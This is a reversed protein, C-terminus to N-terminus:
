RRAQFLTYNGQQGIVTLGRQDRLWTYAIHPERGVWQREIQWVNLLLYHDPQWAAALRDPTEYYLERVEGPHAHRLPLTLEFVYVVAEDPLLDAAWTVVARDRQQRIVFTQVHDHINWSMMLIGFCLSFISLAKVLPIVTPTIVELMEVYTDTGLAILAFLPPTYILAFRINQYAIGILFLYPLLIWLGFLALPATRKRLRLLGLIPFASFVALLYLNDLLPATYFRANTLTYEFQGNVNTFTRSFANSLSWGQVQDNNLPQFPNNVSVIIQPLIILAATGLALATEKWRIRKWTLLLYLGFVPLLTLYLWRTVSAFAIFVASAFLTSRRGTKAHHILFIASVMAWLLAPIDSMIVISSQVAQGSIAILLGALGGALRSAGLQWALLTVLPVLAAGMLISIWQAVEPAIGFVTFGAALLLPYGLSWFFPPLPDGRTLTAAFDYYAYADQGYLGNFDRALVLRVILAIGFLAILLLFRRKM